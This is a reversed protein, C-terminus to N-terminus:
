TSKKEKAMLENVPEEVDWLYRLHRLGRYNYDYLGNIQRCLEAYSDCIRSFDEIALLATHMEPNIDAMELLKPALRDCLNQPILNKITKSIQKRKTNFLCRLVKEVLDFPQNFLPQIRPKIHVVGVDVDPAPVFAGGSITFCDKTHCYGQVLVSLRCREPHIPPCTLRDAVEKQFTLTM